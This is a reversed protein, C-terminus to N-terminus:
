MEKNLLVLSHLIQAKAVLLPTLKFNGMSDQIRSPETHLEESQRFIVSMQHEVGQLTEILGMRLIRVSIDM